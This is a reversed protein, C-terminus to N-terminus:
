KHRPATAREQETRHDRDVAHTPVVRVVDELAEAGRRAEGVHHLRVEHAGDEACGGGLGEGGEGVGV